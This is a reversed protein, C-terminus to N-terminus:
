VVIDVSKYVILEWPSYLKSKQMFCQSLNSLQTGALVKVVSLETWAPVEVVCVETVASYEVVCLETRAPVKLVCLETKASDKLVCLETGDPIQWVITRKQNLCEFCAYFLFLTSIQLYM